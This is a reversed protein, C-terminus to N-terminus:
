NWLEESQWELPFGMARVDIIEYKKLLSRFKSSFKHKPNITNLLYILMSLLFYTRNNIKVLKGKKAPDGISTVKIWQGSPSLPIQPSIRLIRNWLRLHHACLNRIYVFCHLWSEFVQEGLGSHNAILRKEPCSMLNYYFSSLNGFSSIELIMWSPPLPDSYIESFQKIFVEDSRDREVRLKEISEDYSKQNKFLTKDNYWFPGYKHSLIYIMKARIAVEIKELESSVLQRLERDFCYLQFANNFSAGDKFIKLSKPEAILPYWYASLRFYSINELLHLAKKEDEIKLGRNKLRQLQESYELPPEDYKRRSRGAMTM